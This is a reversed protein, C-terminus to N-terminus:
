LIHPNVNYALIWNKMKPRFLKGSRWQWIIQGLAVLMMAGTALYIAPAVFRGLGYAAVFAIISIFDSM